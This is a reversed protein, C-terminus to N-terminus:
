SKPTFDDGLWEISLKSLTGDAKMEKLVKDVTERLEIGTKKNYLHYAQSESVPEGVIKIKAGYEEQYRPIQRPVSVFADGSKNELAEIMLAFSPAFIMEFIKGHENNWKNSVYYINNATNQVILKKGKLDSFSQISNDDERTVLYLDYTTYGEGGYLYKENREINFEFQHAALDIAGTELSLLINAFDFLKYTFKYGPLRREVEDLVAKEFGTLENNEDLYCYPNYTSSTGVIVEIVDSKSKKCGTFFTLLSLAILLALFAKDPSLYKHGILDTPKSSNTKM